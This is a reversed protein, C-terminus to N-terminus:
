RMALRRSVAQRAAINEERHSIPTFIVKLNFDAFEILLKTHPIHGRMDNFEFGM